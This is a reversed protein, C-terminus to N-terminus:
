LMFSQTHKFDQPDQPTHSYGSNQNDETRNLNQSSIHAVGHCQPIWFSRGRHRRFYGQRHAYFVGLACLLVILCLVVVGAIVAPLNMDDIQMHTAECSKPPGVDNRAECHYKGTDTRSVTQFLLVGTFKNVTYTANANHIPLPIKDKFWTYVAPPISHQDSCRLEVPSGTLASSPIDCSPTHPPVLVALTVNTEGLTIGDLPASVECRYEGADAQTVRRLRVTAGDIEARGEFPGRFHGEFYVFSVDKDKKKWEIRPNNDIETKFECSLEADSYEQVRVRPNQSTVTVPTVSVSQILILLAVSVFMNELCGCIEGSSDLFSTFLCLM